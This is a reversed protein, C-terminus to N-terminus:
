ENEPHQMHTNTGNPQSVSGLSHGTGAATREERRGEPHEPRAARDDAAQGVHRPQLSVGLAFVSDYCVHFLSLDEMKTEKCLCWDRNNKPASLRRNELYEWM